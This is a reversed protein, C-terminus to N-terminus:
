GKIKIFGEKKYSIIQNDQNAYINVPGKAYICLM